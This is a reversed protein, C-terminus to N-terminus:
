RLRRRRLAGRGTRVFTAVMGAHGDQAGKACKAEVRGRGVERGHERRWVVDDARRLSALQELAVGVIGHPELQWGIEATGVVLRVAACGARQRLPAGVVDEDLVTLGGDGDVLHAPVLGASRSCCALPNRTRSRRSGKPAPRCRAAGHAFAKRAWPPGSCAEARLLGSCSGWRAGPRSRDWGGCASGQSSDRPRGRVGLRRRLSPTHWRRQSTGVGSGPRTGSRSSAAAAWASSPAPGSRASTEPAGSVM